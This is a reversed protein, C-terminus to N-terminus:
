FNPKRPEVVDKQKEDALPAETWESPNSEQSTAKSGIVEADIDEIDPLDAAARKPPKVETQTAEDSEYMAGDDSTSIFLKCGRGIVTKIAMQDTFNRHAPSNGKMAGQMWAQRIQKMTMIEVHTKEDGLPIIAYAGRIKEIDINELQQTHKVIRKKGTTTDIEYEFIDGEYIVTGTPVDTVGGIRRALAITGHYELECKLTNGYAIFDCQKKSVSLGQVAMKLLSQAVSEHSCVELVPRKNSDRADQLAFWAMKMENALAYNKPLIFSGTEQMETIRLMVKDTIDKQLVALSTTAQKKEEEMKNKTKLHEIFITM